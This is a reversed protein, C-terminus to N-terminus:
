AAFELGMLVQFLGLQEFADSFAASPAVIRIVRGSDAYSKTAAALVTVLPTTMRKVASADITFPEGGTAADMAKALDSATELEPQEPLAFDAGDAAGGDGTEAEGADPESKDTM